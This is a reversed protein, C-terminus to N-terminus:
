QIKMRRVLLGVWPEIRIRCLYTQLKDTTILVFYIQYINETTENEGAKYLFRLYGVM